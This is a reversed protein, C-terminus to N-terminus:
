AFTIADSVVLGGMPLVLVLYWTPTGTVDSIVLNVLGTADSILKGAADTVTEIVGGAAGVAIGGDPVAATPIIGAADDSLYFDVIGVESLAKETLPDNLQVAVDIANAAETGVTMVAKYTKAQVEANGIFLQGISLNERWSM